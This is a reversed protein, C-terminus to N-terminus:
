FSQVCCIKKIYWMMWMNSWGTFDCITTNMWGTFGYFRENQPKGAIYIALISQVCCIKKIYFMM